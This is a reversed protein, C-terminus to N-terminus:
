LQTAHDRYAKLKEALLQTARAIRTEVTKLPAGQTEAVEACTLGEYRFLVFATRTPEPLEELAARVRTVLFGVTEAHEHASLADGNTAPAASESNWEDRALPALAARRTVRESQNLFLRYATRRLFGGASGRGEFLGRKRWVTMFTEQLLDEADSPNRTLRLLFRFLPDRQELFLAHFQPRELAKM